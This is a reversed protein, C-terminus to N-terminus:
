PDPDEIISGLIVQITTKQYGYFSGEASDETGSIM